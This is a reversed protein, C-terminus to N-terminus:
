LLHDFLAVELVALDDLLIRGVVALDYLSRRQRSRSRVPRLQCIKPSTASQLFRVAVPDTTLFVPVFAVIQVRVPTRNELGDTRFM